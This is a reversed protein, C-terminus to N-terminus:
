QAQIIEINSMSGHLGDALRLYELRHPDYGLLECGVTDVAVPDFGAL